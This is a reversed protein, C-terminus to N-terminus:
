VDMWLLVWLCLTCYVGNAEIPKLTPPALLHLESAVGSGELRCYFPVLLAAKSPFQKRHGESEGSSFSINAAFLRCPLSPTRRGSLSRTPAPPPVLRTLLTLELPLRCLTRQRLESRWSSILSQLSFFILEDKVCILPLVTGVFKCLTQVIPCYM